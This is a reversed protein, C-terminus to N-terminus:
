LTSFQTKAVFFSFESGVIFLDDTAAGDRLVIMPIMNNAVIDCLATVAKTAVEPLLPM